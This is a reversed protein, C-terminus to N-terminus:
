GTKSLTNAPDNNIHKPLKKVALCAAELNANGSDTIVGGRVRGYILYTKNGARPKLEYDSSGATKKVTTNQQTHDITLSQTTPLRGTDM